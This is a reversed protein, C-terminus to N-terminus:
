RYRSDAPEEVGSKINMSGWCGAERRTSGVLEDASLSLESFLHQGDQGAAVPCEGLDGAAGEAVAVTRGLQVGSEVLM